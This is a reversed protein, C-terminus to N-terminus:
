GNGSTRYREKDEGPRRCVAGAGANGAGKKRLLDGKYKLFYGDEPFLKLAKAVFEEAEEFAEDSREMLIRCMLKLLGPHEPYRELLERCIKETEEAEKMEYHCVAKRFLVVDEMLQQMEATVHDLKERIQLMRYAKAVQETYFLTMMAAWFVEDELKLLIPHYFQYINRFDERGIFDASLQMQYYNKFIELLTEFQHRDVLERLRYGGERLVALLEMEMSKAQLLKRQEMLRHNKKAHLLYYFKRGISNRRLRRKNIKKMYERRFDRYDTEEVTIADHSSREEHPPIYSWEDGYHWILYDSTRQPVMVKEGEFNMDKVPFMM